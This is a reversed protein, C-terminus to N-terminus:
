PDGMGGTRSPDLKRGTKLDETVAHVLGPRIRIFTVRSPHGALTREAALAAALDECDGGGHKWIERLTRWSEQPDDGLYRLEGSRLADLVPREGARLQAVNIKVIGDLLLSAESFSAM